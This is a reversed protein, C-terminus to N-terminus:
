DQVVRSLQYEIYRRDVISRSGVIQWLRNKDDTLSVGRALSDDYRIVARATETSPTQHETSGVNLIDATAGYENLQCWVKKDETEAVPAPATQGQVSFIVSEDRDWEFPPGHLEPSAVDVFFFQQFKVSDSFYDARGTATWQVYNSDPLREPRFRVWKGVLASDKLAVEVDPTLSDPSGDENVASGLEVSQIPTTLLADTDHVTDYHWLSLFARAFGYKGTAPLESTATGSAGIGSQFNFRWEIPREVTRGSSASVRCVRNLRFRTTM